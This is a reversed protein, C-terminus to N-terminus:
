LNLTCVNIKWQYHERVEKVHFISFSFYCKKKSICPMLIPNRSYHFQDLLPYYIGSLTLIDKKAIIFSLYYTFDTVNWSAMKEVFLAQELEIFSFSFRDVKSVLLLSGWRTQNQHKTEYIMQECRSIINASHFYNGSKETLPLLVSRLHHLFSLNECLCCLSISVIKINSNYM